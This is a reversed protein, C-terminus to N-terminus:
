WALPDEHPLSHMSPAIEGEEEDKDEEDDDDGSSEPEFPTEEGWVRMAM